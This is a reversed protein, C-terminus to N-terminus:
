DHDGGTSTRTSPGLEFTEAPPESSVLALRRAVVATSAASVGQAGLSRKLQATLREFRRYLGKQDEGTLRAIRSVPLSSWYRLQVLVRDTPPLDLLARELAAGVRQAEAVQEDEDLGDSAQGHAPVAALAAEAVRRRRPRQPLRVWVAECAPETALGRAVLTQAAESYSLRDRLVLRELEVAVPGLRHAEASPRWKGWEVNRWDLYLRQIVTLLFTRLTSRGEFKRLIAQDHDLLRLRAWSCFEDAVDPALRHMRCAASLAAEITDKHPTYLDAPVVM